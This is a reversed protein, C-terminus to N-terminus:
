REIKEDLSIVSRELGILKGSEIKWVGHEKVLYLQVMAQKHEGSVTIRFYADGGENRHMIQFGWFSLHSSRVVGVVDSIKPSTHVYHQAFRYAESNKGLIINHAYSGM